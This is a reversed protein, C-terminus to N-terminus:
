DAFIDKLQADVDPTAEATSRLNSNVVQMVETRNTSHRGYIYAEYDPQRQFMLYTSFLLLVIAASAWGMWRRLRVEKHRTPATETIAPADGLPTIVKNPLEVAAMDKFFCQLPNLEESVDEGNFYRYLQREEEITTEGDFFRDVLKKYDTMM